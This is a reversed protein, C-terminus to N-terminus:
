EAVAAGAEAFDTFGHFLQAAGLGSGAAGVELQLWYMQDTSPAGKTGDVTANAHCGMCDSRSYSEMSTNGLYPRTPSSPSAINVQPEILTRDAEDLTQCQNSAINFWQTSILQYNSWVSLLGMFSGCISNLFNATPHNTGVPVQRCLRSMGLQAAPPQDLCWSVDGAVDPNDCGPANSVPVVNCAQCADPNQGRASCSKPFFNYDQRVTAPCATNPSAGSGTGAPPLGACNPANLRHEFTSWTWNPQKVTKRAVHMGVLAMKKRECTATGTSNRYSPTYVLLEEIHYRREDRNGLEMWANKLVIAGARPDAPNGGHYSLEGCPFTISQTLGELVEDDYYQNEIVFDYTAPSVMIEYRLFKGRSDIVPDNSLGKNEAELFLDDVKAVEGLVRYRQFNPVTRCEEPYYRAGSTDCDGNPCECSAPDLQCQILDDTSSWHSWQTVNDGWRNVTAGVNRANLALFTDWSYRDFTGQVHSAPLNVDVDGPLDYRLGCLLPTVAHGFGPVLLLIGLALSGIWVPLRRTRYMGTRM